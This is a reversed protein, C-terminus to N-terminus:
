AKTVEMVVERMMWVKMLTQAMIRSRGRRKMSRMRRSKIKMLNVVMSSQLAGVETTTSPWKYKKRKCGVRKSCQSYSKQM